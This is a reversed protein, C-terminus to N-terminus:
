LSAVATYTKLSHTKNQPTNPKNPNKKNQKTKKKFDALDRGHMKEMDAEFM